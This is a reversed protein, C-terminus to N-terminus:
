WWKIIGKVAGVIWMVFKVGFVVPLLALVINTHPPLLKMGFSVYKKVDLAVDVISLNGIVDNVSRVANLLSVRHSDLVGVFNGLRTGEIGLTRVIDGAVGVGGQDIVSQDPLIDIWGSATLTAYGTASLQVSWGFTGSDSPVGEVSCGNAHLWGPVTWKCKYDIGTEISPYAAGSVKVGVYGISPLSVIIGGYPKAEEYGFALYYHNRAVIELHDWVWEYISERLVLIGREVSVTGTETGDCKAYVRGEAGDKYCAWLDSKKISLPQPYYHSKQYVERWGTANVIAMEIVAVSNAQRLVVHHVTLNLDGSDFDWYEPFGEIFRIGPVKINSVSVFEMSDDFVIIGYTGGERVKNGHTPSWSGLWSNHFRAQITPRVFWWVDNTDDGYNQSAMVWVVGDFNNGPSGVNVGFTGEEGIDLLIPTGTIDMPYTVGKVYWNGNAAAVPDIGCLCFVLLLIVTFVSVRQKKRV